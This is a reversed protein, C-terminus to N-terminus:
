GTALRANRAVSLLCIFVAVDLALLGIAVWPSDPLFMIAAAVHGVVSILGIALAGLRGLLVGPAAALQIVAVVLMLWGWPRADGVLWSATTIFITSGALVSIAYFLNLLGITLLWGSAFVAEGVVPLRPRAIYKFNNPNATATQLEPRPEGM